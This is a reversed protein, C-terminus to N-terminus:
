PTHHVRLRGETTTTPTTTTTFTDAQGRKPPAEDRQSRAAEWEALREPPVAHRPWTGDKIRAERLEAMEAVARKAYGEEVAPRM